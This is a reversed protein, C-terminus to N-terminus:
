VETAECHVVSWSGPALVQSRDPLQTPAGASDIGCDRQSRVHNRQTKLASAMDRLNVRSYRRKSDQLCRITRQGRRPHHKLALRCKGRGDLHRGGLPGAVTLVGGGHGRFECACVVIAVERARDLLFQRTCSACPLGAVPALNAYGTTRKSLRRSVRSSSESSGIRREVQHSSAM